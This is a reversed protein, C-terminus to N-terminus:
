CVYLASLSLKLHGTNLLLVCELSGLTVGCGGAQTSFSPLALFGPPLCLKLVYSLTVPLPFPVTLTFDSHFPSASHSL